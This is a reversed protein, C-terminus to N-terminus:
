KPEWGPGGNRKRERIESLCEAYSGWLDKQSDYGAELRRRWAPVNRHVDRVPVLRGGTKNVTHRLQSYPFSEERPWFWKQLPQFEILWCDLGGGEMEFCYLLYDAEGYFMWGPSEHGPNTCSRTELFFDAYRYGPWRVIKEEIFIAAGDRGQVVTDVAYRKQLITALRGKDITVYRGDVAYKGYFGPALVSDRKAKQWANDREFENM